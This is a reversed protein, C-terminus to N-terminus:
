ILVVNGQKYQTAMELKRFRNKKPKQTGNVENLLKCM